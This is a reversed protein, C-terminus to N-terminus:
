KDQLIAQFTGSSNDKPRKEFSTAGEWSAKEVGKLDKSYVIEIRTTESVNDIGFYEACDTQRTTRSWVIMRNGVQAEVHFKDATETHELIYEIYPVGLPSWHRIDREVFTRGQFPGLKPFVCLWTGSIAPQLLMVLVTHEAEGASKQLPAIQRALDSSVLQGYKDIVATYRFREFRAERIRTDLTAKAEPKRFTYGFDSYSIALDLLDARSAKDNPDPKHKDITVEMTCWLNSPGGNLELQYVRKTATQVSYDLFEVKGSGDQGAGAACMPLACVVAVLTAAKKRTFM